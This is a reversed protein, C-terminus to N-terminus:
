PLADVTGGRGCLGPFFGPLVAPNLLCSAGLVLRPRVAPLYRLHSRPGDCIGGGDTLHIGCEDKDLGSWRGARYDEGAQVRRTCPMCGISPYGDEVLPHARCITANPLPKWSSCTGNGCRISAIAATLINWRCCTPASAPRSVSAGRSRRRSRRWRGKSRFPRASIAAPMPIARGCLATPITRRARRGPQAGALACRGPGARGALPRSLALNRRVAQRHQPVPDAHQSRYRGGAEAACGIGRRLVVCGGDQRCVGRDAGNGSYRARRPGCGQGAIGESARGRGAPRCRSAPAIGRKTDIVTVNSM